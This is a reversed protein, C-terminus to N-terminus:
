GCNILQVPMRWIRCSFPRLRVQGSKRFHGSEPNAPASIRYLKLTADYSRNLSRQKGLPNHTQELMARHSISCQMNHYNTQGAHRQM